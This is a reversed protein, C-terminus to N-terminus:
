KIFRGASRRMAAVVGSTGDSRPARLFHAVTEQLEYFQRTSYTGHIRLAAARAELDIGTDGRGPGLVLDDPTESPRAVLDADPVRVPAASPDFFRLEVPSRDIRPSGMRPHRRHACPRRSTPLSSSGLILWRADRQPAVSLTANQHTTGSSSGSSTATARPISGSSSSRPLPPPRPSFRSTPPKM